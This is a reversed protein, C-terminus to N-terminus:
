LTILAWRLPNTFLLCSLLYLKLTHSHLLSFINCLTTLYHSPPPLNSLSTLYEMWTLSNILILGFANNKSEIIRKTMMMTTGDKRPPAVEGGNEQHPHNTPLRHLHPYICLLRSVNIALISNSLIRMISNCYWDLPPWVGTSWLWSNWNWPMWNRPLSGVSKPMIHTPATPIPCHRPPFPPLPSWSAISQSHPSPSTLTVNASVISTFWFSWCVHSKLLPSNSSVAYITPSLSTRLRGLISDQLIALHWHYWIM